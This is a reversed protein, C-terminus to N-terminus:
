ARPQVRPRCLEPSPQREARAPRRGLSPPLSQSLRASAQTPVLRFVKTCPSGRPRCFHGRGMLPWSLAEAQSHHLPLCCAGERPTVGGLGRRAVLDIVFISNCGLRDPFTGPGSLPALSLEGSFQLVLPGPKVARPYLAPHPLTRQGRLMRRPRLVPCASSCGPPM